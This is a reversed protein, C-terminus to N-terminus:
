ESRIRANPLLPFWGYRDFSLGELGGAVGNINVYDRIPLILAEQMIVQQVQAYLAARVNSDSTSAAQVFLGDLATSSFGTWNLTGGSSFYQALFAPDAGFEYWPVLNYEGRGVEAFLANRTPVSVLEARIGIQRWQDQLLQAVDPILGWPPVIVRLSLDSGAADLYGDNDADTFTNALLAQAETVNYAYQGQLQGYYFPTAASLPGWAIPSFRQFVAASIADRNTALILAQRVERSGTPFRTTNMLFQLPQGPIPVQILDVRAENILARADSPLLEGAAQVDGSQLALARASADALCRFEIEELTGSDPFNYFSPGWTYATSRRIVIRDGPVYEVFRYPGTGVQHFQYRESSVSDLAAPSAIGLYVQSFSDLLPSYPAALLIRITFDDVIEYGAYTGLMFIAKQSATEPAIIRDLNAAVAQANFPTGDHFTVGQKLRFTYAMGDPSIEWSEALGPVFAGTSPDRYVLTDYVQRLPIGLEASANRHPDIGSPEFSLGYVIRHTSQGAPANPMCAAVLLLNLIVLRIVNFM